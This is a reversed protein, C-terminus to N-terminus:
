VAHIREINTEHRKIVILAVVFALLVYIPEPYRLWVLFPLAMGVHLSANSVYGIRKVSWVWMPFLILAQPWLMLVLGTGTAMGKGGKFKLFVSYSHGVIAIVGSIVGIAPYWPDHQGIIVQLVYIPLAGKSVDLFFVVIGVVIGVVAGLEKMAVRFVNTTGFNGSGEKRIDKGTLIKIVALGFPISGYIYSALILQIIMLSKM